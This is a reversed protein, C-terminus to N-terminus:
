FFAFIGVHVFLDLFDVVLFIKQFAGTLADVAPFSNGVLLLGCAHDVHEEGGFAIVLEVDRAELLISLFLHELDFRIGPFDFEAFGLTALTALVDFLSLEFFYQSFFELFNFIELHLHSDFLIVFHDFALTAADDTKLGRSGVVFLFIFFTLVNTPLCCLVHCGESYPAPRALLIETGLTFSGGVMYSHSTVLSSM